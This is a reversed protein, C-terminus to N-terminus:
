YIQWSIVFKMLISCTHCTGYRFGLICNKDCRAWKNKSHSINWVFTTFFILVCM